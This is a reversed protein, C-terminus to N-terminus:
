VIRFPFAIKRVNKKWYDRVYHPIERKPGKYLNADNIFRRQDKDHNHNPNVKRWCDQFFKFPTQGSLKLQEAVWEELSQTVNQAM